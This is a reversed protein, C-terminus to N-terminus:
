ANTADHFQVVTNAADNSSIVWHAAAEALCGSGSCLLTSISSDSGINNINSNIIIINRNAKKPM